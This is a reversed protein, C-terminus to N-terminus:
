QCPSSPLLTGAAISPTPDPCCIPFAGLPGLTAAWGNAVTGRGDGARLIAGCPELACAWRVIGRQSAALRGLVGERGGCRLFAGPLPKRPTQVPCTPSTPVFSRDGATLPTARSTM